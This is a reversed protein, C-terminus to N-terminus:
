ESNLFDSEIGDDEYDEDDKDEFIIKERNKVKLVGVVQIKSKRHVLPEEM